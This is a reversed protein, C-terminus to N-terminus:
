CGHLEDRERSKYSWLEELNLSYPVSITKKATTQPASEKLFNRILAFGHRTMFSEPHFQIGHLPYQQHSLGMILDDQTYATIKLENTLAAKGPQVKLSHYRAATFPSPLGNFIGNQDHLIVSTKGHVPTRCRITKGGFVENICQMGLCVGLIPITQHFQEIVKLSIGAACPDKPGPSILIYDPSIAKVAEVAIADSRYVQIDLDFTMFMQILNYTFSDYNDIVLLRAFQDM